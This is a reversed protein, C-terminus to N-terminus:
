ATVEVCNPGECVPFSNVIIHIGEENTVCAFDTTSSGWGCKPCRVIVKVNIESM